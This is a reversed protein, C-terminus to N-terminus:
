RAFYGRYYEYVWGTIAVVFLGVGIVSIWPGIAIGL